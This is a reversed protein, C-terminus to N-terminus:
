LMRRLLTRTQENVYESIWRQDATLMDRFLVGALFVKEGDILAPRIHRIVGRCLITQKRLQLRIRALEQGASFYGSDREVFSFALGGASIDVLKLRFPQSDSESPFVEIRVLHGSPIKFRLFERRQVRFIGDPMALTVIGERVSKIPSRFLVRVRDNVLSAFCDPSRTSALEELFPRLNEYALPRFGVERASDDLRVLRCPLVLAQKRTFLQAGAASRACDALIKRSESASAVPEFSIRGKGSNAGPFPSGAAPGPSPVPAPAPTAEGLGAESSKQAPNAVSDSM